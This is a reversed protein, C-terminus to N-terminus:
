HLRHSLAGCRATTAPRAGDCRACRGRRVYEYLVLDLLNTIPAPPQPRSKITSSTLEPGHDLHVATSGIRSLTRNLRAGAESAADSPVLRAIMSPWAFGPSTPPPPQMSIEAWTHATRTHTAHTHRHTARLVHYQIHLLDQYTPVQAGRNTTHQRKAMHWPESVSRRVVCVHRRSLDTDCVLVISGSM